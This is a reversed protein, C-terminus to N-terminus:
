KGGQDQNRERQVEKEIDLDFDELLKDLSVFEYREETEGYHRHDGKGAENDYGIIRLGPRGYFLSYKLGHPREPTPAPLKWIKAQVIAGNELVRKAEFVISARTGM